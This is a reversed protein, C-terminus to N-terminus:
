RPLPVWVSQQRVAHKDVKGAANRPLPESRVCVFEPVKFPALTAHAVRVLEDADFPVGARLVVCAGVRSGLREDPIGVVASEAVAPYAALAAEVEVSYVNEGGRNILDTRRDLMFVRGQDDIRVLDGTHLWGDVLAAATAEPRGWYGSMLQPGRVLLQGIGEAAEPGVLRLETAAVATGVSGSHSQADGDHLGTVCPAETLGYGPALRAFPFAERLATAQAPPTPAAGYSLIRIGSVDLETFDPHRLAHWFMAPVGNLVEIREERIASVWAGVEFAPLIVVCGGTVLAPVWQMGCALVHFLPAAVLARLGDHSELAYALRVQEAASLLARHSLMAGKPAGTTGSTYFIAALSEPDDGAIEIPEGDPLEAEIVLRAGSDTVIHAREPGTLRPNIPVPVAGALLTGLFALIWPAGNPLAVGVRDGPGVGGGVLGGAVRSARQWLEAYTLRLGSSLDIVAEANPVRRVTERGAAVLTPAIALPSM